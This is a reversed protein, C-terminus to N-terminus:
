GFTYNGGGRQEGFTYSRLKNSEIEIFYVMSHPVIFIYLFTILCRQTRVPKGSIRSTLGDNLVPM